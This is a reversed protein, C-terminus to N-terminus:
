ADVYLIRCKGALANQSGLTNTVSQGLFVNLNVDDCDAVGGTNATFRVEKNCKITGNVHDIGGTNKRELRRIFKYRDEFNLNPFNTSPAATYVGTNIAAAGNPKLDWLFDLTFPYDQTEPVNQTAVFPSQAQIQIRYLIAVVRIKNGVRQGPGVGQTIPALANSLVNTWTGQTGGAPSVFDTDKHKIEQPLPALGRSMYPNAGAVGGQAIVPRAVKLKKNAQYLTKKVLAIHKRQERTRKM